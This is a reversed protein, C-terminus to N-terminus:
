VSRLFKRRISHRARTSCTIASFSLRQAMFATRGLRRCLTSRLAAATEVVEVHSTMEGVEMQADLTRSQGVSLEVNTYQTVKFGAKSITVTYGGIPLGPLEYAGNVGTVTERRLATSTAVAEVRAGVIVSGTPDTVTGTLTARDVQAAVPYTVLAFLLVLLKRHLKM